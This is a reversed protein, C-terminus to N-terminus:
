ECKDIWEFKKSRKLVNFFPACRDIARSVFRSLAAVRNTLSMVEKPKKPSNMDFFAKIKGPNAEIGRQNVMFGFFKGSGVGFTCKLPNLNMQYKWLIKFMRKLYEAHDRAMKSKVLMDDKYVKMSKGILDKFM